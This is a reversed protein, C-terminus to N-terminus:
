KPSVFQGTDFQMRSYVSHYFVIVNIPRLAANPQVPHCLTCPHCTIEKVVVSYLIEGQFHVM